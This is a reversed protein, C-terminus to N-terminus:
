ASILFTSVLIGGECSNWFQWWPPCNPPSTRAVASKVRELIHGRSSILKFVVYYDYNDKLGTFTAVRVGRAYDDSSLNANTIIQNQTSDNRDMVIVEAHSIRNPSVDTRLDIVLTSM